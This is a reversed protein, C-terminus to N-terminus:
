GGGLTAGHSEGIAAGHRERRFLADALEQSSELRLANPLGGRPAKAAGAKVVQAFGRPWRM